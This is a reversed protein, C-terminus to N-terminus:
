GRTLRACLEEFLHEPTSAGSTVGITKVDAPFDLAALEDPSALLIAPVGATRAVEALRKSNSSNRSGLVIVRDVAAALARVAEQRERTAYCIDQKKPFLLNFGEQKLAAICAAYMEGSITTQSLVALEKLDPRSARLARVDDVGEIITITAEAEGVIGVVEDHGKHGILAIATGAAAFTKAEEHVKGVFPCTADVVELRRREALQRVAPSVGHASFLVRSGEPIEGLDNVFRAGRTRLDDVVHENHVIEHFCWLPEGPHDALTKDAIRLARAVGSCMGHPEAIRLEM